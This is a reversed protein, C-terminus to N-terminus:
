TATWEGDTPPGDVRPLGPLSITRVGEGTLWRVGGTAGRRALVFRGTATVGGATVGGGTVGGAGGSAGVWVTDTVREGGSEVDVAFAAGPTDLRRLGHLRRGGDPSHRGRRAVATVLLLTGTGATAARLVPAPQKVGYRTSV